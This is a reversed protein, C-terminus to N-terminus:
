RFSIANSIQDIYACIGNARQSLPDFWLSYGKPKCCESYGWGAYGRRKRKLSPLMLGQEAHNEPTAVGPQLRSTSRASVTLGGQLRCCEASLRAWYRSL